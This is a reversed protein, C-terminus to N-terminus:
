DDTHYPKAEREVIFQEVLRRFRSAYILDYTEMMDPILMQAKRRVRAIEGEAKKRSLEGDIIKSSVDDVMSRLVGLKLEENLMDSYDVM